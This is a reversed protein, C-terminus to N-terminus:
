GAPVEASEVPAAAPEPETRADPVSRGRVLFWWMAALALVALLCYSNEVVRAFWYPGRGSLVMSTGTSPLKFYLVVATLAGAAVRRWQRGDGVLAAIVVVGWHLHHVWSVPSILVALFGVTGVVAVDEGLRHLRAALWYGFVGVALVLVLWTLSLAPNTDGMVRLLMGRISQNSTGNNPGLRGPDLLAQTWYASTSSPAVLATLLTAAAATGVSVALVRWRRATAWHVWFVAPTLKVAAAIGVLSGMPWRRQGTRVVDALCLAVLIANVQGFRIGEQLPQLQILVGAVAGQALASRHGFRQLLPRFAMGVTIWLLWLQFATWLWGAVGFPVALLPLGLLASFPPYTMPLYQPASTLYDYVPRGLLLSHAGERYVELDVQWIEDPWHVLYQRVGPVSALLLLAVGASWWRPNAPLRQRLGELPGLTRPM